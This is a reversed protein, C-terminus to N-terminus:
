LNSDGWIPLSVSISASHPSTALFGGSSDHMVVDIPSDSFGERKGLAIEHATDTYSGAAENMQKGSAGGPSPRPTLWHIECSASLLAPPQIGTALEERGVNPPRRYSPPPVLLLSIDKV